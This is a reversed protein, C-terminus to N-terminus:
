SYIVIYVKYKCDRLQIELFLRYRLKKIKEIAERKAKRCLQERDNDSSDEVDAKSPPVELPYLKTVPHSTLGNKTRIVASRTIGDVGTNLKDVIALTWNTRPLDDHVLM